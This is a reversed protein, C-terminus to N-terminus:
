DKFLSNLIEVAMGLLIAAAGILVVRATEKLFAVIKEKEM